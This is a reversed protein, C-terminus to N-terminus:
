LVNVMGQGHEMTEQTNFNLFDHMRIPLIKPLMDFDLVKM